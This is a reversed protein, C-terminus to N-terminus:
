KPALAQANALAYQKLQAQADPASSAAFERYLGAAKASEGMGRYAEALGFIPAALAVNASRAASYDAVADQYRGLGIKASGRAILAVAFGPKAAIAQDLEAIAAEFKRERM